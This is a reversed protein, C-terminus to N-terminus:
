AHTKLVVFGEPLGMALAWRQFFGLNTQHYTSRSYPDWFLSFDASRQGIKWHKFNGFIALGKDAASDGIAYSQDNEAFPYGLINRQVTSQMQGWLPMGATDALKLAYGMIDQHWVIKANRKKRSPMKVLMNVLDAYAMNSFETGSAMVVSLVSTNLYIGSCPTGTGQLTNYDLSQALAEAFQATIFSVVDYADDALFENQVRVWGDARVTDLETNGLTPNTQTANSEEPTWAITCATAESPWEMKDRSMPVVDCEQLAFSEARAFAQIEEQYELPVAYGATADTGVTLVAKYDIQQGNQVCGFKALEDQAGVKNQFSGLVSLMFKSYAERRDEDCISYSDRVGLAKLNDATRQLGRGQRDLRKELFVEVTKGSGPVELLKKGLPSELVIDLDKQIKATLEKQEDYRTQAETVAETNEEKFANFKEEMIPGMAARLKKEADSMAPNNPDIDAM